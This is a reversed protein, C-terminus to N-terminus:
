SVVYMKEPGDLEGAKKPGFFMTNYNTIKQGTGTTALLPL